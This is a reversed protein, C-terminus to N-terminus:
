KKWRQWFRQGPWIAPCWLETWDRKYIWQLVNQEAANALSLFSLNSNKLLNELSGKINLFRFDAPHSSATRGDVLWRTQVFSRVDLYCKRIQEGTGMQWKRHLSRVQVQIQNPYVLHIQQRESSPVSEEAASRWWSTTIHVNNNKWM